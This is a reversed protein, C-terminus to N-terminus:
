ITIERATRLIDGFVGQATVAAGAGAGRIVIPYAGYNETFIEFCSDAGPVIGCTSGKPFRELGCYLRAPESGRPLVVNGVYRVVEGKEVKALEEIHEEFDGIHKWMEELSASRLSLPVLNQTEVHELESDLDLERALILVKRAVDIGSLDIRPDPETFGNDVAEHLVEGFHRGQSLANFIYGLSGSFLGRISTIKDGSLHLLKLYDILPLGAGVNTEYRYSKHHLELERRLLKYGKYPQVNSIKNSSVLDFGARVLEGYRKTIASSSTNDVFILHNLGACHAYKIIEGVADHSTNSRAVESRWTRGVGGEAILLQKSNAIAFVIIDLGERILIEKRQTVIQDILAGGVTGHGVVAIYIKSVRHADGANLIQFSQTIEEKEIENLTIM